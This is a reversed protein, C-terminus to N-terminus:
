MKVCIVKSAHRIPKPLPVHCAPTRNTLVSKNAQQKPITNRHTHAAETISPQGERNNKKKGTKIM